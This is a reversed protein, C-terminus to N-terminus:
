AWINVGRVLPVADNSVGKRSSDWSISYSWQYNVEQILGGGSRLYDEALTNTAFATNELLRTVLLLPSRVLVRTCQPRSLDMIFAAM